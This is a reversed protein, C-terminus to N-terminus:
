FITWHFYSLPQVYENEEQIISSCLIGKYGYDKDQTNCLTEHLKTIRRIIYTDDDKFVNSFFIASIM